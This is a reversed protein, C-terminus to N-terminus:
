DTDRGDDCGAEGHRAARGSLDERGAMNKDMTREAAQSTFSWRERRKM